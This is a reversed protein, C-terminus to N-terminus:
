PVTAVKVTNTTGAVHLPVGATVVATDGTVLLGAERAAVLAAQQMAEESDAPPITLPVAGWVLSLRRRTTEDPTAAIVPTKPRHRAVLRTTSGSQTCTVLAAARLRDALRVASEAVEDQSGPVDGEPGLAYRPTLVAEAECATRVMMDVTQVPYAGVATEESLMIADTGDLIANAVDTVEARTPRPNSVMSKLMQTATIVPKGAENAARILEKQVRPVRELFIEVGLDGRAVMIGDAVALISHINDLAEHKEIKALLPVAYGKEAMFGRVQEVDNKDRVFSLAVYDVGQELGFVLDARDKATFFPVRMTRSPLNIGKRGSLEGGVIVACRIDIDSVEQIELEIAGDNLLLLDGAAVDAPLQKYSVSVEQSNGPVDRSTLTFVAGPELTAIGAEIPGIRVKPGALDQLIAVPRGHRDATKRLETITPVREAHTGHSFNLRAVDMGAAVLRDLMDPSNTAPGITCVIKTRRRSM